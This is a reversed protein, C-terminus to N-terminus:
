YLSINFEIQTVSRVKRLKPFVYGGLNRHYEWHDNLIYARNSDFLLQTFVNSTGNSIKFYIRPMKGDEREPIDSIFTYFGDNDTFFHGQNRYKKSQPSLHWVEIKAQAIGQSGSKNFIRGEVKIGKAHVISSRLDNTAESYPNYGEFPTGNEVISALTKTTSFMALGATAAASKLLFSRRSNKQNTM